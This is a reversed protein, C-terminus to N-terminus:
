STLLSQFSPERVTLMERSFTEPRGYTDARAIHASRQKGFGFVFAGFLLLM